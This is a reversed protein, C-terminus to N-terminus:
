PSRGGRMPIPRDAVPRGTGDLVTVQAAGGHRSRDLVVIRSFGEDAILGRLVPKRAVDRWDRGHVTAVVRVGSLMAERISAADEERGIEDVVIVDPSMSRIMMMMGEAKPCADYVDTRPGVDFSPIGGVSAALESREDVIGVKLAPWPFSGSEQGYSFSRALDRAMTTKGSGPPSVLLTHRVTQREHDLIWPIIRNAAGRVERAIRVNFGTMDRIHRVAGKELVVRGAIGIRHGGAVTIFGRRLQEELTYLSHNSLLDVLQMCDPRTPRYASFPSSTLTGSAEVFGYSGGYVIELPRDQRIRIEELNGRVREPLRRILGALSAPLVRLATELM